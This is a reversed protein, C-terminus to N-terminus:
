MESFISGPHNGEGALKQNQLLEALVEVDQDNEKLGQGQPFYGVRDSMAGNLFPNEGQYDSGANNLSSNDLLSSSKDPVNDFFSWAGRGDGTSALTNGNAPWAELYESDLDEIIDHMGIDTSSRREEEPALRGHLLASEATPSSSSQYGPMSCLLRNRQEESMAPGRECPSVPSSHLCPLRPSPNPPEPTQQQQRQGYSAEDSGPSAPKWTYIYNQIAISQHTVQEGIRDFRARQSRQQMDGASVVRRTAERSSVGRQAQGGNLMQQLEDSAALVERTARSM